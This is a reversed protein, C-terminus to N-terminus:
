GGSRCVASRSRGGSVRDARGAAARPARPQRLAFGVRSRSLDIVGRRRGAGAPNARLLLFLLSSISRGNVTLKTSAECKAAAGPGSIPPHPLGWGKTSTPGLHPSAGLLQGLAARCFARSPGALPHLCHRPVTVFHPMLCRPWAVLWSSVCWAHVPCALFRGPSATSVRSPSHCRPVPVPCCGGV